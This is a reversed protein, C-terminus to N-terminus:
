HSTSAEIKACKSTAKARGSNTAAAIWVAVLAIPVLSYAAAIGGRVLLVGCAACVGAITWSVIAVRRSTHGNVLLIDYYHLRSGALPSQGRWIRQAVVRGADLLPLAAVLIPFALASGVSARKTAYDLGLFAALVGLLTSGSDGLFISAPAFNFFLFALCAAAMAYALAISQPTLLARPLAAYSIAIVCALGTALGDSGDVFNLSNVYLVVFLCVVIFAVPGARLTAVHWGGSWIIMAAAIQVVLRVGPNMRFLDDALGASWILVIAAFFHWGAASIHPNFIFLGSVVGPFVAVGGLRSVPKTHIKLPGPKDLLRMRQCFRRILPVLTLTVGFAVLPALALRDM